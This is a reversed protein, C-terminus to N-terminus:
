DRSDDKTSQEFTGCICVIIVAIGVGVALLFPLDGAITFGFCLALVIGTFIFCMIRAISTPM